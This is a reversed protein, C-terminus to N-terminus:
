RRETFGGLAAVQEAVREAAGGPGLVRRLEGLGALCAERQPGAWLSELAGTVKEVTVEGQLLEPVVQRGVLLNVLTFFPVKVLLRGVAYSTPTVRYISVFPRGMLGAELTATGSAVLSLHSAGVVDPAQGDVWHVELGDLHPALLGRSLGPAVPIVPKLDPHLAVMRKAVKAMTPLLRKVESRRSGPLLGLVPQSPNLALKARFHEPPAPAPVQDIVPNGVYRADVGSGEYFAPEFPLICLLRDVVKAITKVRGPRWAWVMPSVYYAVKVGLAKLRAALRLNFDPADVLLAVQPRRAQAAAELGRLVSWIRPIKPLVESIGMVSIESSPYLGELGAEALRTGGMGFCEVGPVRARLARVVDAAHADGSAEAAVVLVKLSAVAGQM